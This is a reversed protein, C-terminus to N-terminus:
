MRIMTNIHSAFELFVAERHELIRTEPCWPRKLTGDKDVTGTEKIEDETSNEIPINESKDVQQGDLLDSKWRELSKKAALRESISIDKGDQM